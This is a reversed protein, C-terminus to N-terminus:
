IFEANLVCKKIYERQGLFASGFLVPTKRHQSVVSCYRLFPDLNEESAVFNSLMNVGFIENNDDYYSEYLIFCSKSNRGYTLVQKEVKLKCEVGNESMMYM